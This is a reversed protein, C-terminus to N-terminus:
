QIKFSITYSGKASIAGDVNVYVKQGNQVPVSLTEAAGASGDNACELQSSPTQETCIARAILMLNFGAAPTATVTLTGTAHATVEYIHDNAANVDSTSITCSTGTKTWTNGGTLNSGTGTVTKGPWVHVPQGPCTASSSPDGNVKQCSPDCGDNDTKNIDDCAEGETVKGDGCFPMTTLKATVKYKGASSSAGDVFLFYEKGSIMNHSFQEVGGAGTTEACRVQTAADDCTTRIYATPNLAGEGQVKFSVSGSGTPIIRYVHDGGGAGAACAGTGEADDSAGTTDGEIVVEQGPTLSTSKGPCADIGNKPVNGGDSDVPDIPNGDGDVPKGTNPDDIEGGICESRSENTACATAFSKGDDACLKTGESRDACRCFVNAGPTCIREEKTNADGGFICAPTFAFVGAVLLGSVVFSRVSM